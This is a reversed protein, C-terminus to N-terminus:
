TCSEEPRQTDPQMAAEPPIWVSLNPPKSRFFRLRKIWDSAHLHAQFSAGDDLALPAVRERHQLVPPGFELHVRWLCRPCLPRAGTLPDLSLGRPRLGSTCLARRVEIAQLPERGM